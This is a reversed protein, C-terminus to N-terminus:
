NWVQNSRNELDQVVIKIETRESDEGRFREFLSFIPELSSVTLSMITASSVEMPGQKDRETLWIGLTYV